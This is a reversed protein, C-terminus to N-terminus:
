ILFCLGPDKRENHVNANCILFLLCHEGGHLSARELAFLAKHNQNSMYFFYICFYILFVQEQFQSCQNVECVSRSSHTWQKLNYRSM